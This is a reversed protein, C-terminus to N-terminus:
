AERPRRGRVEVGNGGRVVAVDDLGLAVVFRHLEHRGRHHKHTDTLADHTDLTAWERQLEDDLGPHIHYYSLVPSIRSLARAATRSRRGIARHLPLVRDVLREVTALRDEVPLRLLWIRAAHMGLWTRTSISRAYHDFALWGGPKVQNYLAAITAEPNPTHQVVGLCFVGDFQRPAFPLSRVDAQAIRHRPGPPFSSANAEVASSLDVSSLSAGHKLLVETFRGAGCGVELVRQGELLGRGHHKAVLDALCRLARDESLPLGTRSDLQTTRFRKWQLGFSEAYSETSIFRPIGHVVQVAHGGPCHYGHADEVFESRHLPCWYPPM